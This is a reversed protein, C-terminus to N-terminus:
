ALPTDFVAELVPKNCEIQAEELKEHVEGDQIFFRNADAKRFTEKYTIECSDPLGWTFEANVWVKLPHMTGTDTLRREMEADAFNGSLNIGDENTMKQMKGLGFNHLTKRVARYEKKTLDTFRIGGNWTWFANKQRGKSFVKDLEYMVDSMIRVQYMRRSINDKEYWLNRHLNRAM